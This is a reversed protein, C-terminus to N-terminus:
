RAPRPLLPALVAILWGLMLLVGGSPAAMPVLPIQALARLTLDGCFLTLGLLLTAAAIRALVPGVFGSRGLSVMALIAPAHFLLFQAAIRLSESETPRHAAAASGAVGLLGALAALAVLLRDPLASVM